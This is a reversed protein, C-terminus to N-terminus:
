GQKRLLEGRLEEPLKKDLHPTEDDLELATEAERRFAEWRGAAHLALALKAHCLGSNPYMEVANGYYDIAKNIHEQNSTAKFAELYWDGAIRHAHSSHPMRELAATCYTEFLEFKGPMPSVRWDRFVIAALQRCPRGDLPDEMAANALHVAAKAPNREAAAMSGRCRLVPGYGSLYCTVALTVALILGSLAVARPVTRWRGSDAENLGLALLLWLTGAVAPFGMAGAALLNVLLVAVGIAPLAQPLEGGDVWDHLLWLCGAALALALPVAATSPPAAVIWRLLMALLFGCVAGGYVYDPQDTGSSAATGRADQGHVPSVDYVPSVGTGGQEDDRPFFFKWSVGAFGGLVVLLALLAPMGATGGVEFLFNHPDAVEESAEPLKYRTYEDKFNGPGCGLLPKDAIMQSTSQWYQLRFLVSKPAGALLDRDLGGAVLAVAALIAALVAAAAVPLKWGFRRAGGRCFLWVLVIGFATAIYATRSKTLLLCIGIPILCALLRKRGWKSGAAIGAGVVLWPALYGALSNTLGGFTAYPEPSDLRDEYRKRQPSGPSSWEGAERLAKDPDARYYARTRPMEYCYQYLGYGSLGAALAIMVVVVARTERSGVVLQRAFFFAIGMGIWEWLMNVAPRPSAYLTAWIGALTHLAILVLVAIDVWGFRLRFEARGILGLGWFVALAIWLMVVPLGDGEVAASESPYLLRVVFLATMGGLLWPRLQDSPTSVAKKSRQKPAYERSSRTAGTRKKKKRRGM